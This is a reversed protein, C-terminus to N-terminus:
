SHLLVSMFSRLNQVGFLTRTFALFCLMPLLGAKDLVPTVVDILLLLYRGIFTALDLRKWLAM